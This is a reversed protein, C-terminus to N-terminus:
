RTRSTRVDNVDLHAAEHLYEAAAASVDVRKKFLKKLLWRKRVNRCLVLGRLVHSPSVIDCGSVVNNVLISLMHAIYSTEDRYVGSTLEHIENSVYALSLKFRGRHFARLQHSVRNLIAISM